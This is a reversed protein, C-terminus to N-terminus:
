EGLAVGTIQGILDFYVMAIKAVLALPCDQLLASTDKQGINALLQMLLAAEGDKQLEAVTLMDRATVTLPLKAIKKSPLEIVLEEGDILYRFATQTEAIRAIAASAAEEDWSDFDYKTM